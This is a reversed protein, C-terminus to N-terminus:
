SQSRLESIQELKKDMEMLFKSVEADIEDLFEPPPRFRVIFLQMDEPFVPCYSVFDIWELGACIAQLGMQPRYVCPVECSLIYELHVHPKPCKIELGGHWGVLGDPSAAVRDNTPHLVLGVQRVSEGTAIEYALRAEPELRIGRETDANGNFSNVPQGTLTEAILEGMYAARTLSPAGSRGKAMVDSVRSATVRSVRAAHWAESGQEADIVRM